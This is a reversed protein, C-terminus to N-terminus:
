NWGSATITKVDQAMNNLYCIHKHQIEM